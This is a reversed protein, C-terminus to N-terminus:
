PFRATVEESELTIGGTDAEIHDQKHHGNTSVETPLTTSSEATHQGEYGFWSDSVMYTNM